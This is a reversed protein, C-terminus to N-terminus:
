RAAAVRRVRRRIHFGLGGVLSSGLLWAAAPVPVPSVAGTRVALGHLAAVTSAPYAYNYQTNYYMGATSSWYSAAVLHDFFESANLASAPVNNTWLGLEAIVLHNMEASDINTYYNASGIVPLRWAPDTWDIRYGDLHYTLATELAAAWANQANWPLADHSYDLWVVSRGNNDDDWVLKYEGVPPNGGPGDPDYSATGVTVLAASASDVLGSLLLATAVATMLGSKM